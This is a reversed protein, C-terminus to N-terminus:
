MSILFIYINFFIDEELQCISIFICLVNKKKEWNLCFQGSRKVEWTLTVKLTSKITSFSQYIVSGLSQFLLQFNLNLEILNWYYKLNCFAISFVLTLFMHAIFQTLMVTFPQEKLFIKLSFKVWNGYSRLCNGLFCCCWHSKHFTNQDIDFFIQPCLCSPPLTPPSAWGRGCVCVCFFM